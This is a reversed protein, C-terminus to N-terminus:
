SAPEASKPGWWGPPAPDATAADLEVHRAPRDREAARCQRFPGEDGLLEWRHRDLEASWGSMGMPHRRAAEWSRWLLELRWIAEAHRWWQPCWYWRQGDVRWGFMPLFWGQVWAEVDGCLLKPAEGGAGPPSGGTASQDLRQTLEEVRMSLAQVQAALEQESM